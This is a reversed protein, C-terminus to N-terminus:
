LYSPKEAAASTLLSKDSDEVRPRQCRLFVETCPDPWCTEVNSM